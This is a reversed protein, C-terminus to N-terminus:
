PSAKAGRAAVMAVAIAGLLAVDRLLTPWGVSEAVAAKGFCGCDLDIGRGIVSGILAIFALTLVGLMLGGARVWRERTSLMAAAGVLEVIPVVAALAYLSWDPFAQYNRIDEAFGVLDDVKPVAAITFTAAVALRAAWIVAIRLIVRPEAV